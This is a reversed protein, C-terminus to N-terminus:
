AVARVIAWVFVALGVGAFVGTIFSGIAVTRFAREIDDAFEDIMKDFENDATELETM